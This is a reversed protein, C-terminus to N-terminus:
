SMSVWSMICSHIVTISAAMWPTGSCAWRLLCVTLWLYLRLAWTLSVQLRNTMKINRTTLEVKTFLCLPLLCLWLVPQKIEESVHM